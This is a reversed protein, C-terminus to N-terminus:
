LDFRDFGESNDIECTWSREAGVTRLYTTMENIEWKKDPDIPHWTVQFNLVKVEGKGTVETSKRQPDTLLITHFITEDVLPEIDELLNKLIEEDPSNDKVEIVAAISIPELKM